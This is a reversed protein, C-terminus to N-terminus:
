KGICFTSFIQGLVDESTTEGTIDGIAKLANYLGILVIEEGANQELSVTSMRLSESAVALLDHHRASTVVYGCDDLSGHGANITAAISSRLQELGFGTNASVKLFNGGLADYLSKDISREGGDCKNVVILHKHSQAYSLVLRDEDDFDATADFVLLLLDADAAARRSREIGIQEILDSSDRVGATDILVVPIGAITVVESLSDRTTGPVDTVISRDYSLLGNFISSKGVNPRGLLVTKAGDKLLKGTNYTAALNDLKKILSELQAKIREVYVAPLDDEVFELSSELPVIIDLLTQSLPRVQASLEGSLQRVAQSAAAYSQADILDRIAEAQNVDLKKNSLARLTFEGAVAPRCGSDTLVSVIRTLVVPSGHCSLEVVEEGTFSRPPKFYTLICEDLLESTSPDRLDRYYAQKPVPNFNADAILGRVRDLALSGSVRIVGIGGRGYPTSIAM